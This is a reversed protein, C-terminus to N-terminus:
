VIRQGDTSLPWMPRPAYPILSFKPPFRSIPSSKPDRPWTSALLLERWRRTPGYTTKSATPSCVPKPTIRNQQELFPWNTAREGWTRHPPSRQSIFRRKSPHAMNRPVWQYTFSTLRAARPKIQIPPKRKRRCGHRHKRINIKFSLSRSFLWATTDQVYRREAPKAIPEPHPHRRPSSPGSAGNKKSIPKNNPISRNCANPRWRLARKINACNILRM